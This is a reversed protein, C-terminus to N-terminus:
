PIFRPAFPQIVSWMPDHLMYYGGIQNVRLNSISMFDNQLLFFTYGLEYSCYQITVNSLTANNGFNLTDSANNAATSM